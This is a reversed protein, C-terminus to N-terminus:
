QSISKAFSRDRTRGLCALSRSFFRSFDGGLSIQEREELARM